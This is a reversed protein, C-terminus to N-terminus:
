NEAWTVACSLSAGTPASVGGFNIALQNSVGRLVIPQRHDVPLYEYVGEFGNEGVATNVLTTLMQIDIVGASTGVTPNVTYAKMVATPTSNLMDHAAIAPSTSTGGTDATSRTILEVPLAGSATSTGLCKVDYVNVTKTASGTLVIVDTASAAPTMNLIAATYTSTKTPYILVSSGPGAPGAARALPANLALAVVLVLSAAKKAVDFLIKTM